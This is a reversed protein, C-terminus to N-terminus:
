SQRLLRYSGRVIYHVDFTKRKLHRGLGSIMETDVSELQQEISRVDTLSLVENIVEQSVPLDEQASGDNQQRGRSYSLLTALERRGELAMLMERAILQSFPGVSLDSDLCPFDLVAIRKQLVPDLDVRLIKPEIDDLAVFEPRYGDHRIELYTSIEKYAPGFPNAPIQGVDSV